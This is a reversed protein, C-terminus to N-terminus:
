PKGSRAPRQEVYFHIGFPLPSLYHSVDHRLPRLEQAKDEQSFAQDLFFRLLALLLLCNTCAQCESSLRM